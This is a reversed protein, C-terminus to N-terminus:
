AMRIMPDFELLELFVDTNYMLELRTAMVVARLSLVADLTAWDNPSGKPMEKWGTAGKGGAPSMCSVGVPAGTDVEIIGDALRTLYHSSFAARCRKWGTTKGKFEDDGAVAMKACNKATVSDVPVSAEDTVGSMLLDVRRAIWTDLMMCQIWCLTQAEAKWGPQEDSFRKLKSTYKKGWTPTLGGEQLLARLDGLIPVEEAQSDVEWCLSVMKVFEAGSSMSWARIGGFEAGWNNALKYENM